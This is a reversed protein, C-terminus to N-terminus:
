RGDQGGGKAMQKCDCMCCDETGKDHYLVKHGCRCLPEDVKWQEQWKRLSALHDKVLMKQMPTGGTNARVRDIERVGLKRWAEKIKESEDM